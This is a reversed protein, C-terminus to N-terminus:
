ALIQSSAAQTNQTDSLAEFIDWCVASILKISFDWQTTIITQLGFDLSEIKQKRESLKLCRPLTSPPIEAILIIKQQLTVTLHVYIREQCFRNLPVSLLVSLNHLQQVLQKVNIKYWLFGLLTEFSVRKLHQYLYFM